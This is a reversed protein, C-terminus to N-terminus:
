ELGGQIPKRFEARTPLEMQFTSGKGPTSVVWIRGGHMEVIQKAIALGLGTGGKSKTLSSDVQHFQDFIRDQQDLPIGPGTDTVSVSFHGNRAGAAISVEGADTFKIANGVLNLLVQTLRQEDGLGIPLSKDVSTTLTLKKNQALSETAARVTEVVSEIAYESMNLTFQGSEIKAIDLVTNILGLLHKGNSCIRTLADLSKPGQAEYFGEQILEAYGLIAALPTRLEHSMNAVFQNKHQSAIELDEVTKALERTRAQVEEFLRTNEIAIVAQDAFTNVLEIQRETFPCVEARRIFIVGIAESARVLPVALATRWGLRLANKRGEPYEDAEALVDEIHITGRDIVSRGMILGRVLPFTLQGVPGSTPIQGYHAVLRLGGGFVQLIVADYADCLRAASEVLADLVKQVDLASRSIVKLVDATATQQELSETLERKSAQEAEFLRSNEIAIVAQDAFSEVLAVQKDDFRAVETRTLSIVGIPQGKFLLPVALMTHINSARSLAHTAVLEPDTAVDEVQVARRALTARGVVSGRSLPMRASYISEVREEPQGRHAVARLTEGELRWVIAREAQCLRQATAVITDLVPQAENPSRSIVGLVESTATQRDLSEQLEKTRTQVEKFLRTNEIAIVAQDAFTNVLEIQRETFPRVETRRIFIVGIAEGARVLPVGLATRWGSQLARSRSEPYEDAEALADAVQITRRDIVACGMIRERVLPVVLQGVPIQGHHAVLRLGDGFVQFIAADYADCLRAASEVLADLVKQVDLASRSIVKLVDATATQQELSETLERTRAQVEEFLRSNEIAIVAQDAFSEVLAVQKDDFPAVRTRALTIVGIPHDKLLLPV